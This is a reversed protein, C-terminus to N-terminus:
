RRWQRPSKKRFPNPRYGRALWGVRIVLPLSREYPLYAVTLLWSKYSDNGFDLLDDGSGGILTDNGAGGLLADNGDGGDLADNGLGGRLLDNGNEGLLSDHGAGGSLTDNGDGGNLFDNGPGGILAFTSETSSCAADRLSFGDFGQQTASFEGCAIPKNDKIAWLRYIKDAPPAPLNQVAIAAKQAQSNLLISGTATNAEKTGVLAFIRTNPQQLASLVPKTMELEQRLRNNDSKASKVEQRLRYNDLGLALVLLAAVSGTINIIKSWPLSSGNRRRDRNSERQAAELITQHLRSPPEVDSIGYPLLEFAEQWLNV